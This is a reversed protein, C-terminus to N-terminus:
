PSWSGTYGRLLVDPALSEVVPERLEVVFPLARPPLLPVGQGLLKPAIYAHVEDVLDDVFLAAHVTPGGEAILSVVNRQGLASLLQDLNIVTADEELDLVTVGRQQLAAKWAGPSGKATAVITPASGDFVRATVPSRGRSDLVVRVPQRSAAAGGPRATLAPDDALVTGSGVIMADVRDRDQHVREAAAPGTLWRVGAAPAGVMGDLSVAFKAIVYPRGSQRFRLYPRLLGTIAAAGDGVEVEIGAARLRAVGPGGVHPDLIGVVVRSVGAAVIVETCPPTRKGEFPVCPELTTYLTAGRADTNALAAAEAHPGGYPATAGVSVIQGDRVLAAGVWPNPSTRGRAAGAAEIAAQMPLSPENVAM